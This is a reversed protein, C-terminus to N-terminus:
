TSVNAPMPDTQPPQPVEAGFLPLRELPSWARDGHWKRYTRNRILDDVEERSLESLRGSATVAEFWRGREDELLVTSWGHPEVAGIRFLRTEPSTAAAPEVVRDESFPASAPDM